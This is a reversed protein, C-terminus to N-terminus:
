EELESAKAGKTKPEIIREARVRIFFDLDEVAQRKFEESCKETLFLEFGLSGTRQGHTFRISNKIPQENPVNIKDEM